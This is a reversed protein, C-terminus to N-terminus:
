SHIQRAVDRAIIEGATTLEFWFDYALQDDTVSDPLSDVDLLGEQTQVRCAALGERLLDNLVSVLESMDPPDIENERMARLYPGELNYLRQYIFYPSIGDELISALVIERLGLKGNM